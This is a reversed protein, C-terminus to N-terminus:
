RLALKSRYGSPSIGKIRNDNKRATKNNAHLTFRLGVDGVGGAGSGVNADSPM